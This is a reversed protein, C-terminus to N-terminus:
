KHCTDIWIACHICQLRTSGDSSLQWLQEGVRRCTLSLSCGGSSVAPALDDVLKAIEVQKIWHMTLHPFASKACVETKFNVKWEKSDPSKGLHMESIPFRPYDMM